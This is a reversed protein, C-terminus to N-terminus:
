THTRDPQEKALRASRVPLTGEPTGKPAESM